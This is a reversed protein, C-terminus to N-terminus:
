TSAAWLPPCNSRGLEQTDRATYVDGHYVTTSIKVNKATIKIYLVAKKERKVLNISLISTYVEDKM